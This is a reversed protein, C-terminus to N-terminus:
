ETPVELTCTRIISPKNHRCPFPGNDSQISPTASYIWVLAVDHVNPNDVDCCPRKDSEHLILRVQYTM